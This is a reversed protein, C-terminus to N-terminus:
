PGQEGVRGPLTIVDALREEWPMRRLALRIKAPASAEFPALRIFPVDQGLIDTTRVEPLREIMGPAVLDCVLSIPAEDTHKMPMIGIGRVELLGKLPEPATAWIRGDRLNLDVRDDKLLMRVVEVHQGEAAYIIATCGWHDPINPDVRDSELLIRVMEASEHDVKGVAFILATQGDEDRLNPDTREDALLVAAVSVHNKLAARMLATQDHQDSANPDALPHKLASKVM